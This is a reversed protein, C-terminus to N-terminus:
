PVCSTVTVNDLFWGDDVTSCDTVTTFAVRVAQGACGGSGGTIANCVADLNVTTNTFTTSVGTWIPTGASGAPPCSASVTGNYAGATIATAPVFTYNTGNLSVALTGGDFGSEFRRRHGFSLTTGTAGAPVVVGGAGNAQGFAFTNSAYNATCNSGGFRFIKTGGQATCTQIGRWSTVSGGSVFTGRTWNSLGTGTEFTNTYLTQNTCAPCVSTTATAQNSNGSECTASNAARVVYFYGTNCALGTNSFSTTASTGVQTYPGGSTTGRLIHYETAGAVAGWSLNIQSTSITTATLGAPAGPPTCVPGGGETIGATWVTEVGGARRDTWSPFAKGNWASLSNYDGYQNADFGATTEDSQGTTVQQPISWTAGDDTSSQYYLHTKKRTSDAVTDYYIISVTGTSEDVALAPNFQDNLGAQNNIKSPASWTVGGDTSRSFFIRSKCTSATNSGPENGATTCGADGSLDNWVVYANNKTATRYASAYTYILMRRTNFSPVGIDFSGFTTAIKTRGGFSVGGNTSKTVYIGRSGTDPWFVFVDGSSNTKVDCGIATGTTETGSITTVTQWAGAPGTRRNFVQPLGNHWCVYINDKFASTASHDVWMMQKDANTATGSFTADQTWTQGGNASRYARMRLQTGASNIGITTAWATGDSTWDVTPDSHFSDGTFLSLTTQGWTAGGDASWFQAQMGSGGINNSNSIIRLPNLFDIRIDSESRPNAVAGSIRLDPGITADVVEGPLLDPERAGTKLNQHSLMWEAAEKLVLPYGGTPDRESYKHEPHEKRWAVRLWKPIRLKDSLEKPDLLEFEQNKAVYAALASDAAIGDASLQESLTPWRAPQASTTSPTGFALGALALVILSRSRMKM